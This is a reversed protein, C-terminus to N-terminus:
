CKCITVCLDYKQLLRKMNPLSVYMDPAIVHPGPPVEVVFEMRCRLDRLLNVNQDFSFIFPEIARKIAERTAKNIVDGCVVIESVSHYVNLHPRCNPIDGYFQVFPVQNPIACVNLVDASVDTNRGDTNSQFNVIDSFSCCSYLTGRDGIVQQLGHRAWLLQLDNSLSITVGVHVTTKRIMNFGTLSIDHKTREGFRFVFIIPILGDPLTVKDVAVQLMKLVDMCEDLMVTWHKVSNLDVKMLINRARGALAAGAAKSKELTGPLPVVSLWIHWSDEVSIDTGKCMGSLKQPSYQRLDLHKKLKPYISELSNLNNRLISIHTLPFTIGAFSTLEVVIGDIYPYLNLSPIDSQPLKTARAVIETNRHLLHSVEQNQNKGNRCSITLTEWPVSIYCQSRITVSIKQKDCIYEGLIFYQFSRNEQFLLKVAIIMLTGTNSPENEDTEDQTEGSRQEEVAQEHEEELMNDIM